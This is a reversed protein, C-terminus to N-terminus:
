RVIQQDSDFAFGFRIILRAPKDLDWEEQLFIFNIPKVTSLQALFTAQDALLQGPAM